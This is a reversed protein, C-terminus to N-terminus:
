LLNKSMLWYKATIATLGSQAACERLTQLAIKKIQQDTANEYLCFSSFIRVANDNAQTLPNLANVWEKEPLSLLDKELKKAVDFAQNASKSDVTGLVTYRGIMEQYDSVLKATDM